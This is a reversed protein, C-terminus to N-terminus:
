SPGAPEVRTPNLAPHTTPRRIFLLDLFPDPASPAATFPTIAPTSVSRHHRREAAARVRPLAGVVGALPLSVLLTPITNEINYWDRKVLRGVIWVVNVVAHGSVALRWGAAHDVFVLPLNVLVFEVTAIALIVM